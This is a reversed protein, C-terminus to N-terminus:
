IYLDLGMRDIHTNSNSEIMSISEKDAKDQIKIHM